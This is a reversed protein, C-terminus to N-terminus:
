SKSRVPTFFGCGMRHKGGIGLQQLRLSDTDDLNAVEMGFGIVTFRKIKIVKRDPENEINTLVGAAADIGLQELQRKAAELFSEPEEYGKITVIRARLVSAPQLMSVQPIGLRIEHIGIRLQKGALKYASPIRDSQLRMHLSSRDTLYIKGQKDPIGQITQISLGDQHHVEPCIHAIASYLGYGHDAPLSRGSISFCLEVHPSHGTGQKAQYNQTILM